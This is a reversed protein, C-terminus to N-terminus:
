IQFGRNNLATAYNLSAMIGEENPVFLAPRVQKTKEDVKLIGTVELQAGESVEPWRRTIHVLFRKASELDQTPASPTHQAVEADGSGYGDTEPASM